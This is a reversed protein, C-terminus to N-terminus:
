LSSALPYSLILSSLFRSPLTPLCVNIPFDKTGCSEGAKLAAKIADIGEYHFCTVELDARVKVPQPTLRRQINKVLCQKIDEEITIDKFM